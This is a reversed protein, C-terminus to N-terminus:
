TDARATEAQRAIRQVLAVISTDGDTPTRVADDPLPLDADRPLEVCIPVGEHLRAHGELLAQWEPDVPDRPSVVIADADRALPCPEGALVPCRRNVEPGPCALVQLGADRAANSAHWRGGPVEVLVRPRGDRHPWSPARAETGIVVHATTWDNNDERAYGRTKALALM